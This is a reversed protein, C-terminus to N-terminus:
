RDPSFWWLRNETRFQHHSGDHSSKQCNENSILITQHSGGPMLDSFWVSESMKFLTQSEHYFILFSLLLYFTLLLLLFYYVFRAAFQYGGLLTTKKKKQTM